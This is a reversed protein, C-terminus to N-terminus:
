HSLVPLLFNKQIGTSHIIRLVKPGSSIPFWNKPSLNGNSSKRGSIEWLEWSKWDLGCDLMWGNHTYSLAFNLNNQNTKSDTQTTPVLFPFLFAAIRRETTDAAGPVTASYDHAAGPFPRLENRIFLHSARLFIPRSGFLTIAGGFTGTEYPVVNDATGQFSAVPQNGTKIWNTDGIGGAINLVAKFRWDFGPIQGANNLSDLSPLIQGAPVESLEDMYAAHLATIAGASVGGAFVTPSHIKYPNGLAASKRLFRIANKLDQTARVVTQVAGAPTFSSYGLRYQISVTTYGRKAFNRCTSALDTKNGQLFSGGHVMVLLPRVSATDGFPQYVDLYLDQNQGTANLSRSYLVNPSIQVSDFIPNIFRGGTTDFVFQASASRFLCFILASFLIFRM